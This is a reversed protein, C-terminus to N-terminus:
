GGVDVFDKEESYEQGNEVWRTNTSPIAVIWDMHLVKCKAKNFMM